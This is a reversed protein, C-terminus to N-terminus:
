KLIFTGFFLKKYKSVKDFYREKSSFTIQSIKDNRKYFRSVSKYSVTDFTYKSVIEIYEKKNKYIKLIESKSLIKDRQILEKSVDVLESKTSYMDLILSFWANKKFNGIALSNSKSYGKVNTVKSNKPYSLKYKLNEIKAVQNNNSFNSSKCGIFFIILIYLTHKKM